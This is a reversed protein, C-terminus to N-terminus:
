YLNRYLSQGSESAQFGDSEIAEQSRRIEDEAEKDIDITIDLIGNEFSKKLTKPKVVRPLLIEKSYSMGIDNSSITLRSKTSKVDIETIPSTSLDLTISLKDDWLLIESENSSMPKYRGSPSKKMHSFGGNMMREIKRFIDDMDDIDIM